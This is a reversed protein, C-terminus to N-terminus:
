WRWSTIFLIYQKYKGAVSRGSENHLENNHEAQLENQQVAHAALVNLRGKTREQTESM